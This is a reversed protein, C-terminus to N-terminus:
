SLTVNLCHAAPVTCVYAICIWAPPLALAFARPYSHEPTCLAVAFLSTLYSVLCPAVNYLVRLWMQVKNQQLCLCQALESGLLSRIHNRNQFAWQLEQTSFLSNLPLSPPASCLYSTSAVPWTLHAFVLYPLHQTKQTRWSLWLLRGCPCKGRWTQYVARECWSIFPHVSTHKVCISPWKSQTHM